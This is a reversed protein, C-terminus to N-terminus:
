ASASAAREAPHRAPTDNKARRSHLINQLGEVARHGHRHPLLALLIFMHSEGKRLLRGLSTSPTICVGGM